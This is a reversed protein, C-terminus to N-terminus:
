DQIEACSSQLIQKVDAGASILAKTAEVNCVSIATHLPTFGQFDIADILAGARVLKPIIDSCDNGTKGVLLHLPTERTDPNCVNAQAGRALLMTIVNSAANMCAIHLLSYGTDTCANVNAGANLLLTAAAVHNATNGCMCYHLASWGLNDKQNIDSDIPLACILAKLTNLKLKIAAEHLPRHGTVKYEALPSIGALLHMVNDPNDYHMLKLLQSHQESTLEQTMSFVNGTIFLTIVFLCFIM